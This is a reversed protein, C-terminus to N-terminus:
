VVDVIPEGWGDKRRPRTTTPFQALGLRESPTRIVRSFFDNTNVATKIARGRYAVSLSLSLLVLSPSLTVLPLTAASLVTSYQVGYM